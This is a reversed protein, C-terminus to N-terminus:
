FRRQRVGISVLPKSTDAIVGGLIEAFASTLANENTAPYFKGRGNLAMHWLEVPRGNIGLNFPDPWTVTGNVLKSYSTGGYTSNATVDFIPEFTKGDGDVWRTAGSGFGITNTIMHQWTAPNNKPNWFQQLTTAGIVENGEKKIVPRVINAMDPQLDSAWSEFAFDALTSQTSTGFGDKFIRTQASTPDYSTTGDGLTRPTGDANGVTQTVTSNWGGDTMFIHYSRRCALYPTSQSVGPVNAWPSNTGAPTKMYDLAQKVMKHSPTNYGATLSDVFSNFKVRHDGTFPKMSNVGGLGLTGAGSSSGNNHMVQWALRIRANPVQGTTAPSATPDGFVSKLSNKLLTLKTSAVNSTSNGNLDESMSGSDDISIIVNPAPENGGGVPPSQSLPLVALSLTPITALIALCASVLPRLYYLKHMQPKFKDSKIQRAFQKDSSASHIHRPQVTM